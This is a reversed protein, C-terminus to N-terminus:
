EKDQRPPLRLSLVWSISVPLGEVRAPMGATQSDPNSLPLASLLAVKVSLQSKTIKFQLNIQSNM